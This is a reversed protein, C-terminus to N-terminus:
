YNVWKKQGVWQILTIFLILILLVIGMASAYGSELNVFAAEYLYFVIVSTSGAPGGNTLVMILDFVKFSGVVGTILLFFTTPSLMPLTISFFQRLPSAGDVDAAEYLDQPIGQLGALYIIMNFGLSTWVMIIMVALLAYNPDALWMPPHDIGISRLFGNIPGSNPHFLVRWLLAIAVISSIFPMFYIVKFFSKFYTGKNILAALVMAIFMSVPVVAILVVNNRLSRHFAEDQFLNIYNDWGVFKLGGIGAIFNWDSFSIVGSLLIPIVVLTMTLALMPLIFLYGTVTEYFAQKRTVKM